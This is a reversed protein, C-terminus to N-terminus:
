VYVPAGRSMLTLAEMLLREASGAKADTVIPEVGDGVGAGAGSGVEVRGVM